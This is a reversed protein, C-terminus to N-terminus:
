SLAEKGGKKKFKGNDNNNNTHKNSAVYALGFLVGISISSTIFDQYQINDLINTFFEKDMLLLPIFCYAILLCILFLQVVFFASFFEKIKQKM